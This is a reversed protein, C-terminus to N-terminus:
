EDDDGDNAYEHGQQQGRNLRGALRSAAHLAGAVQPLQAESGVLKMVYEAAEWGAVQSWHGVFLVRRAVIVM